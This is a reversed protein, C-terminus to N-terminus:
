CCPASQFAGDRYIGKARIHDGRRREITDDLGLVIWGTPAFTAVLLGLLRQSGAMPSWVCRNLLRHYTQFQPEAGLGMVELVASVTRKGPALLAGILLTQAQPWVRASFIPAVHSMGGATSEHTGGVSYTDRCWRRKAAMRRQIFDLKLIIAFIIGAFALGAFLANVAGFTDGFQGRVGIDPFLWFLVIISMGWLFIIVLFTLWLPWWNVKKSADSNKDM